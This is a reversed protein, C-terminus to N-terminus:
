TGPCLFHSPQCSWFNQYQFASPFFVPVGLRFDKLAQASPTLMSVVQCLSDKRPKNQCCLSQTLFPLSQLCLRKQQPQSLLWGGSPSLKWWLSSHSPFSLHIHKLTFTKIFIMELCPSHPFCFVFSLCVTVVRLKHVQTDLLIAITLSLFLFMVSARLLDSMRRRAGWLDWECEAFSSWVRGEQTLM